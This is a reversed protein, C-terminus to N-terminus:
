LVSFTFKLLMSMNSITISERLFMIRREKLDIRRETRQWTRYDAYVITKSYQLCDKEAHLLVFENLLLLKSGQTGWVYNGLGETKQLCRGCPDRTRHSPCLGSHECGSATSTVKGKSGAPSPRCLQEHKQWDDGFGQVVDTVDWHLGTRCDVEGLSKTQWGRCDCTLLFTTDVEPLLGKLLAGVAFTICNTEKYCLTGVVPLCM